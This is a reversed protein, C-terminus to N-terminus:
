LFNTVPMTGSPLTPSQQLAKDFFAWAKPGRSRVYHLFVQKYETGTYQNRWHEAICGLYLVADGKSLLFSAEEGNPKKIFIPWEADGGLHVTLSIECAPRDKHKILQSNQEYVTAYTYTPVVSEEVLDTVQNTKECLLEVFPLGDQFSKAYLGYSARPDDILFKKDKQEQLWSDLYNVRKLYIFSPLYLYNNKILEINM